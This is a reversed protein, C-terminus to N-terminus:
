ADAPASADATLSAVESELVCAITERTASAAQTWAAVGVQQRTRDQYHRTLLFLLNISTAEPQLGALLVAAVDARKSILAYAGLALRLDNGAAPHPSAELRQVVFAMRPGAAAMDGTAAASLAGLLEGYYDGYTVHSSAYTITLEDALEVAREFSGQLHHIAALDEVISYMSDADGDRGMAFREMVDRAGALDGRFVMARAKQCVAMTVVRFAEPPAHELALDAYKEWPRHEDPLRSCLSALTAYAFATLVDHGPMNEALAALGDVIAILESTGGGFILLFAFSSLATAVRERPPLSREYEIAIPYWHRIADVDHGYGLLATASAVLRTLLDLRGHAEAWQLCARLDEHVDGLQHLTAPSLLRM